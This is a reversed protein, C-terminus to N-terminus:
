KECYKIMDNQMVNDDESIEIVDFSNWCCSLEREIDEKILDFSEKSNTEIKIIIRM